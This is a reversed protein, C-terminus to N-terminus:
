FNYLITNRKKILDSFEIKDEDIEDEIKNIAFKDITGFNLKLNEKKFINNYNSLIEEQKKILYDYLLINIYNSAVETLLSLYLNNKKAIQALYDAKSKKIKDYNKLLLDAEFSVKMPLIFSNNKLFINYDGRPFHVGLYGPMASLEPLEYSIAKQIEFRYQNLKHQAEKLNHNNNIAAEIYHPLYNDSFRNFFEMNLKNAESAFCFSELFIALILYIIRM